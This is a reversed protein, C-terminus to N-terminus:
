ASSDFFQTNPGQLDNGVTGFGALAGDILQQRNTMLKFAQRIRNDAFPGRGGAHRVRLHQLREAVAPDAGAQQVGAPRVQQLAPSALLNIQRSLLANLM